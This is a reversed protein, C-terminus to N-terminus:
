YRGTKYSGTSNQFMSKVTAFSAVATLAYGVLLDRWYIASFESDTLFDPIMRFAETISCELGWYEEVAKKIEIACGMNHAVYIVVAVIALSIVVGIVNIRGGFKEYGKLACVAAALGAIGAIYGLQYVLVWLVGGLLAGLFAGVIGTVVNGKKAALEQKNGELNNCLANYCSDCMFDMENNISSLTVPVENGCSGCCPVYGNKTLYSAAKDLIERIQMGAKGSNRVIFELKKGDYSAKTVKKIGSRLEALFSEMLYTPAVSGEKAYMVVKWLATGDIGQRVYVPFNEVRGQLVKKPKEFLNDRGKIQEVLAQKM